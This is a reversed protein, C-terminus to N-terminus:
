IVQKALQFSIGRVKEAAETPARNFSNAAHTIVCDM